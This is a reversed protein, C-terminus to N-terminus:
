AFGEEVYDALRRGTVVTPSIAVWINHVGKKWPLPAGDEFQRVLAPLQELEVERSEGRALVSWGEHTVADIEDVEFAVVAGKLAEIKSGAESRFVIDGGAVAYIVPLAAPGEDDNFVVRGIHQQALLALCGERDISELARRTM